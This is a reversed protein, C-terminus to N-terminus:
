DDIIAVGAAVYQAKTEASLGRDTVIGKLESLPAFTFLATREFKRHDAVAYTERASRLLAQKFEIFEGTYISLGDQLHVGTASLFAKRVNLTRVYAAAEPGTLMNRVRYGGPVVLRIQDKRTLESIIYLDNTIVTLPRNDIQRAIELTTSGGDLAIIDNPEILRQVRGAIEAKEAQYREDAVNSKLIGLQDSKALVAGGHVRVLLGREELKALDERITKGTVELMESLEAVSVEKRELLAEMIIEYRRLPNM